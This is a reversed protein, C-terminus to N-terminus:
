TVKDPLQKAYLKLLLDMGEELSTTVFRHSLKPLERIGQQFRPILRAADSTGEGLPKLRPIPPDRELAADRPLFKLGGSVSGSTASLRRAALEKLKPEDEAADSPRIRQMHRWRRKEAHDIGDVVKRLARYAQDFFNPLIAIDGDTEGWVLEFHYLLTLEDTLESSDM